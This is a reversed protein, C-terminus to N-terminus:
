HARIVIKAGPWHRRSESVFKQIHEFKLREEEDAANWDPRTM